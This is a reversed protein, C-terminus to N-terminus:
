ALHGKNPVVSSALLKGAEKEDHSAFDFGISLIMLSETLMLTDDIITTLSLLKTLMKRVQSYQPGFCMGIIWLYGEVLRDKRIPQSLGDAVQVKLSNHLKPLMSELLTTTFTLAEELIEEGCVRLHTAEYLSLLGRVDHSEKFKVDDDTFQKFVGSSMYHGQQRVLRFRLAVVYLNDDVNNESTLQSTYSLFHYGWVSSEFNALHCSKSSANTVLEHTM